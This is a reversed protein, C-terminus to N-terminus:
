KNSFTCIFINHSPNKHLYQTTPPSIVVYLKGCDNHRNNSSFILYCKWFKTCNDLIMCYEVKYLFVHCECICVCIFVCFFGRWLGKIRHNIIIM